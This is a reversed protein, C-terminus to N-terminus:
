GSHELREEWKVILETGSLHMTPYEGGPRFLSANFYIADCATRGM